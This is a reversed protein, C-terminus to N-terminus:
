RRYIEFNYEHDVLTFGLSQAEAAIQRSEETTQQFNEQYDLLLFDYRLLPSKLAPDLKSLSDRRQWFQGVTEIDALGVCHSAL